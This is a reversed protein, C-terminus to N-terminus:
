PQNDPVVITGRTKARRNRLFEKLYTLTFQRLDRCAFVMLALVVTSGTVPWFRHFDFTIPLILTLIFIGGLAYVSLMRAPAIVKSRWYLLLTALALSLIEGVVSILAVDLMTGGQLVAFFAIPLTFLRVLNAMMVNLTHGKSLACTTPGVRALRIAFAIGLPTVLYAAEALKPGFLVRFLPEGIAAFCFCAFGAFCIMAQLSIAAQIEFKATNDQIKALLPLFFTQAIRATILSPTMALTLAASFLGLDRATFQNGIVIRDGQLIAFNVMGAVMLPVGFKLAKKFVETDWAIAFSRRALLHSAAARVVQDLFLAALIVRFDKLLIALPWVALLSLAAGSAEAMVLAGFSMDRQQRMVDMHLLSTIFPLIAFAQYAWTLEPHNFIHAIPEAIVYLLATLLIGRGLMLAQITGVFRRSNGQRDQVIMRDLALDGALEVLSLAVIFTSAIGYDEVSILRALLINRAFNLAAITTRGAALISISKLLM